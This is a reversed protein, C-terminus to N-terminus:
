VLAEMDKMIWGCMVKEEAAARLHTGGRFGCLGFDRIPSMRDQMLSLIGTLHIVDVGIKRSLNVRFAANCGGTVLGDVM